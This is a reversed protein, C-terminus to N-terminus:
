KYKYTTVVGCHDRTGAAEYKGLYLNSNNKKKSTLFFALIFLLASIHEMITLISKKKALKTWRLFPTTLEFLM